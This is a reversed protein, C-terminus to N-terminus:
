GILKTLKEVSELSTNQPLRIIFYSKANFIDLPDSGFVRKYYSALFETSTKVYPVYLLSDQENHFCEGRELAKQAEPELWFIKRAGIESTSGKTQAPPKIEPSEM